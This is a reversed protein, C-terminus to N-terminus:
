KVFEKLNVKEAVIELLEECKIRAFKIALEKCDKGLEGMGNYEQHFLEEITM